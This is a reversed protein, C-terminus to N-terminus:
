VDVEVSNDPLPETKREMKRSKWMEEMSVMITSLCPQCFLALILFSSWEKKKPLPELGLGGLFFCLFGAV